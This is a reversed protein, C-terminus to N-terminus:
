FTTIQKIGFPNTSFKFFFFIRSIIYFACSVTDIEISSQSHLFNAKLAWDTTHTKPLRYIFFARRHSAFATTWTLGLTQRYVTCNDQEVVLFVYM